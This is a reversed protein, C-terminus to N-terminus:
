AAVESPLKAAPRSWNGPEPRGADQWSVLAYVGVNREAATFTRLLPWPTERGALDDEVLRRVLSHQRAHHLPCLRLLDDQHEPGGLSKPWRHHLDLGGHLLALGTCGHSALDCTLALGDIGQHAPLAYLRELENALDLLDYRDLTAGDPLKRLLGPDIM